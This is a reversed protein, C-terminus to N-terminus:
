EVTATEAAATEPADIEVEPAFGRRMTNETVTRSEMFRVLYDPGGAKSGVGSMRSGGFPQREVVAGTNSRNVYLNGVRFEKKAREIHAPSRSFLGGTLGFPSDLAIDLADDFDTARMVALVPGFIEEQAIRAKRDVDGFIVPGVYTGGEPSERQLLLTGEERGVRIYGDITEKASIDIVPSVYTEPDEADGVKISKVAEVLRGVFEDYVKNIVIVRSCASCKQGAFGFAGYVVGKVAEDLDADDDVIIANKGGMECIVGKVNRQGPHVVAASKILNLGVEKSGTFAILDVDKHDILFQGVKAGPGPIFHVSGAPAKAERLIKYLEYAIASTQRSPKILVTNGAVLAASTMGTLIAIPFNWPAIVVAVGRPEYFIYNDEGPIHAQMKVPTTLRLAERAYYELFDIAECVDADAERWPKGGEYVLLANLAHRRDRMIGAARLLVNARERPDTDRWTPFFSRAASVAREAEDTGAQHQRVVVEATRSPNLSDLIKDTKIEQGDVIVPLERGLSKKMKALAKLMADRNDRRSYDLTPANRFRPLEGQLVPKQPKPAARKAEMTPARLLADMSMSEVFNQRMFGENSTNELLRRVFYAMGPLMEGIPAYVRQRFGMKVSAARIPEAMGILSQLELANDPLGKERAYAIAHSLSRINHSGVALRIKPYADILMRSILEYNADTSEKRTFVPSPWNKQQALITEYDWYAGKVLRVTFPTKRKKSWKILREADQAADCLYAQIVIGFHPYDALEPEDILQMFLDYTLDRFSYQELDLNVFAGTEKAKLLMPRLRKKLMELSREYPMSDMQSYLSSVKISVNVKPMLGDPGADLLDNDRWKDKEQALVDMVEMYRKQYVDSEEESVTAEGLLDVTFNINEDRLKKLAPLAEAPTTGVVFQRAMDIINKEITGAAMKTGIGGFATAGLVATRVPAPLELGDRAFYEKVHRALLESDKNLMPMVDIFRFMEIKFPEHAMCYDIIKGNWYGKDFMSPSTGKTGAFLEAGVAHIKADLVEAKAM